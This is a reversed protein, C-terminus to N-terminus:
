YIRFNGIRKHKFIKHFNNVIIQRKRINSLLSKGLFSFFVRPFQVYNVYHFPIFVFSFLVHYASVNDYYNFYLIFNRDISAIRGFKDDSMIM